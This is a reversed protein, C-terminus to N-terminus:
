SIYTEFLKTGTLSFGCVKLYTGISNIYRSSTIVYKPGSVQIIACRTVTIADTAASVTFNETTVYKKGDYICLAPFNPVVNTGYRTRDVTLAYVGDFYDVYSAQILSDGGFSNLLKLQGSKIQTFVNASAFDAMSVWTGNFYQFISNENAEGVAYLHKSDSILRKAGAPLSGTINDFGNRKVNAGAKFFRVNEQLEASEANILFADTKTDISSNVPIDIQQKQLM